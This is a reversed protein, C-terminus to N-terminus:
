RDLCFQSAGRRRPRCGASYAAGAVQRRVRAYLGKTWANICDGGYASRELHLRLPNMDRIRRDKLRREEDLPQMTINDALALEYFAREVFPVQHITLIGAALLQQTAYKAFRRADKDTTTKDTKL